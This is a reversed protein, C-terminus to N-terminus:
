LWIFFLTFPATEGSLWGSRVRTGIFDCFVNKREARLLLYEVSVTLKQTEGVM